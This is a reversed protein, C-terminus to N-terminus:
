ATPAFASPLPQRKKPQQIQKDIRHQPKKRDFGKVVAIAIAVFGVLLITLAFNVVVLKYNNSPKIYEVANLFLIVIMIAGAIFKFVTMLQIHKVMADHDASTSM